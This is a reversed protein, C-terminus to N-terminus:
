SKYIKVMINKVVREDLNQYFELLEDIPQYDAICNEKKTQKDGMNYMLNDKENLYMFQLSPKIKTEFKRTGSKEIENITDISAFSGVVTNDDSVSWIILYMQLHNIDTKIKYIQGSKYKKSDKNDDLSCINNINFKRCNDYKDESFKDLLENFEKKFEALKDKKVFLYASLSVLKM